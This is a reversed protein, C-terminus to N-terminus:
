NMRANLHFLPIDAEFTSGDSKEMTYTGRMTGSFSRLVCFSNYAYSSGPAIVPQEGVVGEGHVDYESAGEDHIRWHRSLLRVPEPRDNAITIFYVFFFQRRMLNSREELYFPQVSIRLGDTTQTYTNM